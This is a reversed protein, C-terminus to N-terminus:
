VPERSGSRADPARAPSQNRHPRRRTSGLDRRVRALGRFRRHRRQAGLAARLAASHMGVRARWGRHCAAPLRALTRGGARGRRARRRRRPDHPSPLRRAPGRAAAIHVRPHAAREVRPGRHAGPRAPRHPGRSERRDGRRHALRADERALRGESPHTNGRAAGRRAARAGGAARAVLARARARRACRRHRTGHECRGGDGRPARPTYRREACAVRRLCRSLRARRRAPRCAERPANADLPSWAGSAAGPPCVRRLAM